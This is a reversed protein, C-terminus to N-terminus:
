IDIQVSRPTTCQQGANRAKHTILAFCLQGKTATDSRTCQKCARCVRTACQLRDLSSFCQRLIASTM